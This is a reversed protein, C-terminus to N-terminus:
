ELRIIKIFRKPYNSQYYNTRVVGNNKPASSSHTFILCDPENDMVIGLHGVNKRDKYGTFIILDGKQAEELPIEKGMKAIARSSHPLEVGMENYVFKVFGSCDFGKLSEGGWKYTTGLCLGELHDLQKMKIQASDAPVLLSDEEVRGYGVLFILLISFATLGFKM